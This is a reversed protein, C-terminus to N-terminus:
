QPTNTECAIDLLKVRLERMSTNLKHAVLSKLKAISKPSLNLIEAIEIYSFDLMILACLRVDNNTIDPLMELRHAIGGLRANVITCMSEYDEWDLERKINKCNRLAECSIEINKRRQNTYDSQQKQIQKRKNIVYYLIICSFAFLIIAGVVYVWQYDPKRNLDQKLLQVAQSLKGQRIEILKQVDARDAATGRIAKKDKSEDDNTLIYLANNRDFLENTNHLVQQAYYVSSDSVCLSSYSQAMILLATPNNCDKSLLLSAYYIASDYAQQVSYMEALTEFIKFSVPSDMNLNLLPTIISLTEEKKGQEALEFASANLTYYYNLTDRNKSFYNGSKEYMDHSLQFEGALHCISGMNSYVRGLIHYDRTRTHTARIFAQMAEVPNDKKRLLRGYHYCAHAYSTSLPSNFTSLLPSNFSSLTEYAEALTASDGEDIGYMRGNQWLSDAEAVVTQAERVAHPTCASLCVALMLCLIYTYQGSFM